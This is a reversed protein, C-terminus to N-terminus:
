EIKSKRLDARVMWALMSILSAAWLVCIVMGLVDEPHAWGVNGRMASIAFLGFDFLGHCVASRVLVAWTRIEEGQERRALGAATSVGCLVHGPTGLVLREVVTLLLKGASEDTVAMVFGVNELTSFALGAAAGYVPYERARVVSSYRRVLVLAAYKQLEECAGAIVFAFFLVNLWYAPRAAFEMRLARHEADRVDRERSVTQLENMLFYMDTKGLTLLGFTYGLAGQMAIVLLTSLAMFVSIWILTNPNGRHALPLTSRYYLFYAAPILMPFLSATALVSNLLTGALVLLITVIGTLKAAHSLDQSAKTKDDKSLYSTHEAQKAALSPLRPSKSIDAM